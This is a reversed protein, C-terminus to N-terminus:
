RLFPAVIDVYYAAGEPLLHVQDNVFLASQGETAAHWDVLEANAYRAVGAAIVANNSEEWSRPLRVNVFVVRRDPGAIEMVQDFQKETFTGNNGIHILIVEGLEGNTARQRLLQVAASAQRGVAADVDIGSVAAALAYAAGLMVSDGIATVRSPQMPPLSPTSVPPPPSAPAAPPAPQPAHAPPQATDPHDVVPAEEPAAPPSPANADLEPEPLPDLVWVGASESDNFWDAPGPGTEPAHADGFRPSLGGTAPIVPAPAAPAAPSVIRVSEVAFYDPVSVAPAVAAM